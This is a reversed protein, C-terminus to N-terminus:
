NRSDDDLWIRVREDKGTVTLLEGEGYRALEKMAASINLQDGSGSLLAGFVAVPIRAQVNEGDARETVNMVIFNGKKGVRVKSEHDNVMLYTTDPSDELQRWIRRLEAIDYEKDDIRLQSSSRFEDPVMAELMNLPLNMSVEEGKEGNVEIHLWLDAAAAPGLTLGALLLAMGFIRKGNM